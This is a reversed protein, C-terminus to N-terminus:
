TSPTAKRPRGTTSRRSQDWQEITTQRWWPRHGDLGDPEPLVGTRRYTRVTDWSLGTFTAVDRGYLREENVALERIIRPRVTKLQRETWGNSNRPPPLQVEGWKSPEVGLYTLADATTSFVKPLTTLVAGERITTPNWWPKGGSTGDPPPMHKIRTPPVELLKAAQSVSRIADEPITNASIWAEVLQSTWHNRHRAPANPKPFRGRRLRSKFAEAAIGLRAAVQASTLLEGENPNPDTPM